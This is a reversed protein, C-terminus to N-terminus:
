SVSEYARAADRTTRYCFLVNQLLLLISVGATALIEHEYGVDADSDSGKRDEILKSKKIAADALGQQKEVQLYADQAFGQLAALQYVEMVVAIITLSYYAFLITGFVNETMQFLQVMMLHDKHVKKPELRRNVQDDDSQSIEKKLPNLVKRLRENWIKSGNKLLHSFFLFQIINARSALLAYVVILLGLIQYWIKYKSQEMEIKCLRLIFNSIASSTNVVATFEPFILGLVFGFVLCAVVVTSLLNNTFVYSRVGATMDMDMLQVVRNFYNMYHVYYKDSFIIFFSGVMAVTQWSWVVIIAVMEHRVIYREWKLTESEGTTKDKVSYLLIFANIIQYSKKDIEVFHKQNLRVDRHIPSQYPTPFYHKLRLNRNRGVGNLLYM